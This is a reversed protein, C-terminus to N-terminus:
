ADEGSVPQYELVIYPTGRTSNRRELRVKTNGVVAETLNQNALESIIGGKLRDDEGRLKSLEARLVRHREIKSELEEDAIRPPEHDEADDLFSGLDGWCSDWYPCFECRRDTYSIRDPFERNAICEGIYSFFDKAERNITPRRNVRFAAPHGSDPFYVLYGCDADAAEIYAEVQLVNGPWPESPIGGYCKLDFVALEEAGEIDWELKVLLDITGTAGEIGWPMEKQVEHGLIRFSRLAEFPIPRPDQSLWQTLIEPFMAHIARGRIARLESLPKRTQPYGLGWYVNQRPCSGLVSPSPRYPRDKISMELEM